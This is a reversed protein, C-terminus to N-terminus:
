YHNDIYIYYYYNIKDCNICNNDKINCHRMLIVFYQITVMSGHTHHQLFTDKIKCVTCSPLIVKVRRGVIGAGGPLSSTPFM